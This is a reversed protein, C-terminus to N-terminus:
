KKENATGQQAAFKAMLTMPQDAFHIAEEPTITKSLALELLAQDLTQMGDKRSTAIVSPIQFTKQERILARLAPTAVLVEYAAVRGKGDARRLLQQSIVGRLSEALMTRIQSQRDTPFVDIIRDV